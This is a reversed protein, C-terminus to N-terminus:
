VAGGLPLAEVASIANKVAICTQSTAGATLDPQYMNDAGMYFDMHEDYYKLVKVASVRGSPDRAMLLTIDGRYGKDTTYIVCHGLSAGSLDKVAFVADVYGGEAANQRLFEVGNAFLQQLDAETFLQQEPSPTPTAEENSTADDNDPVAGDPAFLQEMAAIANRIARYSMTAGASVDAGFPQGIGTYCGTEDTYRDMFTESHSIVQLGVVKGDAGVGIMMNVDGGYESIGVYDVCFGIIRDSDYIAYVTQIGEAEIGPEEQITVVNPFLTRIAEEKRALEGDAIPKETVAYVLAVLAAVALCIVLLRWTINLVSLVAEKRKVM